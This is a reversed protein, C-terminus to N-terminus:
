DVATGANLENTQEDLSIERWHRLLPFYLAARVPRKDWKGLLRAYRRLQPAYWATQSDLFTDIGAGEHESTKYDVIWRVNDDTIFSRDIRVSVVDEGDVGTLAMECEAERHDELIWRGREDDLMRDVAAEAARLEADEPSSVGADQFLFRLLVERHQTGASTWFVAGETGIRALLAHVVMGKARAVRGARGAPFAMTVTPGDEAPRTARDAPIRAPITDPPLSPVDWIVPVRRLPVGVADTDSAALAVDGSAARERYGAEVEEGLLPWLASLFSRAAPNGLHAGDKGDRERMTASLLLRRRARTAAVYLLRLDEQAAKRTRLDRIYSYIADAASGRARHPAILFDLGGSGFSRDWLLLRESERRPMGDLRPLIVVDFELGKAKHITMVQLRTDGEPDPPAFLRAAEEELLGMDDIDGGLEHAELLGLLAAAADREEADLLAPAGLALWCGEVLSRVPMRGHLLAFRELVPTVRALRHRGDESVRSLRDEERLLARLPTGDDGTCLVHLDSLTLGCVPSRLVALWAVRDAPARLARTIALLDRVAPSDALSEIEVARFRLDEKRLAPVLEALHTRSRVLVAVSEVRGCESGELVRAVWAAVTRAEESRNGSYTIRIDVTDNEDAHVAVSPAYAVAGEVPNDEAPMIRSFLDNVWSVVGGQSRFNRTLRLRQLPVDAIRGDAWVQLFLGVEAERFRYISQMPDGVLFLTHRDPASWGATLKQLLEFQASSTDQFEDVLIHRIRYELLMALDTPELDSGLARRAAAAIEIHDTVGRRTFQARLEEACAALVTVISGVIEWQAEDFRPAPLSRAGALLGLLTADDRVHELLVILREKMPDGATFGQRVTIGRPKRFENADTMLLKCLGLWAPLDEVEAGPPHADERLVAALADAERKPDAELCAAAHRALMWAEEHLQGDLREGLATLHGRVINRLTTELIDRATEDGLGGDILGLWQERIALMESLLQEIVSFRGDLHVLLRRVAPLVEPGGCQGLLVMRVTDRYIADSSEAVATAPGLRSLWPMQRALWGNLADITLLRLRSPQERLSWGKEADRRLVKRALEQTQRTHPSEADTQGAMRLADLIRVRMEAAAKRTFTIAVIEEPADVGGLLALFRQILLETKGSGAPAQVIFSLTPDLAAKRAQIDQEMAGVDNQQM